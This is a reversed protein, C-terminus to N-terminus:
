VYQHGQFASFGEAGDTEFDVVHHALTDAAELLDQVVPVIFVVAGYAAHEGAEQLVHFFLDFYFRVEDECFEKAGIFAQADSKMDLSFKRFTCLAAKEHFDEPFRRYVGNDVAFCIFDCYGEFFFIM